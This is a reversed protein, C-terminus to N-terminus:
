ETDRNMGLVPGIVLAAMFGVVTWVVFGVVIWLFLGM